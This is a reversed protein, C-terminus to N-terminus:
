SGQLLMQLLPGLMFTPRPTKYPVAAPSLLMTAGPPAFKLKNPSSSLSCNLLVGHTVGVGVEVGVTVELGVGVTVGVAVAVAVTEEVTVGVGVAVSVGVGLGGGM